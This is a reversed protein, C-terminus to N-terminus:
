KGENVNPKQNALLPQFHLTSLQVLRRKKKSLHRRILNVSVAFAVPDGGIDEPSLEVFRPEIDLELCAQYRARGDLIAGEYLAIPYRLGYAAIDDELLLYQDSALPRLLFTAPHFQM